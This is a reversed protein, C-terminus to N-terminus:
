RRHANWPPTNTPAQPRKREELEDELERIKYNDAFNMANMIHITSMNKIPIRNGDKDIWIGKENQYNPRKRRTGKSRFGFLEPDEDDYDFMNDFMQDIIQDAIEGM